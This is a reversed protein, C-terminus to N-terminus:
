PNERGFEEKGEEEEEEVALADRNLSRAEAEQKRKENNPSSPSTKGTTKKTTKERDLDLQQLEQVFQAMKANTQQRLVNLHEMSQLHIKHLQKVLNEKTNSPSM